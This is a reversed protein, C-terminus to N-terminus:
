SCGKLALLVPSDDPLDTFMDLAQSPTRPLREHLALKLLTWFSSRHQLQINWTVRANPGTEARTFPGYTRECILDRRQFRQQTAGLFCRDSPHTTNAIKSYM